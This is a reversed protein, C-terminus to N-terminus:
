GFALAYGALLEFKATPTTLVRELTGSTRERLTTVSTVLFLLTFPLVGLLAPALGSFTAASNFVYRILVMLLSPVAILMAVTRPGHRLQMLGRRGTALTM